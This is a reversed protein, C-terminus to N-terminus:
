AGQEAAEDSTSEPEDNAAPQPDVAEGKAIAAIREVLLRNTLDQRLNARMDERQYVSRFM